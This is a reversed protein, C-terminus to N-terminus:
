SVGTEMGAIPIPMVRGGCSLIRAMEGPLDPKHDVSLPVVEYHLTNRNGNPETQTSASTGAKPRCLICRSDGINAVYLKKEEVLHVGFVCTTGSFALNIGSDSLDAILARIAQHIANSTNSRLDAQDALFTPLQQAVFESIHHGISIPFSSFM